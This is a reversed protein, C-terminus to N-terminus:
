EVKVGAVKVVKGWKALDAKIVAAFEAPTNGVPTVGTAILRDRVDSSALAKAAEAHARAIIDGPTGGPAFLGYWSILEYGAPGGAETITQM